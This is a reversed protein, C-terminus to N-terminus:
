INRFFKLLFIFLIFSILWIFRLSSIQHTSLFFACITDSNISIFVFSYKQHLFDLPELIRQLSFMKLSFLIRKLVRLWQQYQPKKDTIADDSYNNDDISMCTIINSPFLGSVTPYLFNLITMAKKILNQNGKADKSISHLEHQVFLLVSLLSFLFMAFIAVDKLSAM